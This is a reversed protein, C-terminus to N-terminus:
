IAGHFLVGTPLVYEIFRAYLKSMPLGSAAPLLLLFYIAALGLWFWKVRPSVEGREELHQLLLVASFIMFPLTPFFHYQFTCRTVLMWPLLNAAAAVLLVVAAKKRHDPDERLRGFVAETILCLSGVASVWWVAPSGFSSISSVLKGSSGFYFWVSREAFPWEYWNSQCMHTATLGSHYGYMSRQQQVIIEFARRLGMRADPHLSAQYRYFPLYSVFYILAPVLIYFGICFLLIKWTRRWFLRIEGTKGARVGTAILGSFFLVALGAGAYLGTWKSAVGLGFSIGCAGLPLLIKIWPDHLIDRRLYDTMFFFMWLIFFVIFVDVTAIRSQAYHMTDLAMLAQALFAYDRRRFLRKGLLFVVPLMGAGFLAPIVRWGFPTMGFIRIGLSIFTKGLPPHTWEYPNMNHIFEYGTRAHYIEDFYMGNFYTAAEPVTNQEDLLASQTGSPGSVAAPILAGNEDLFAIENLAIEGSLVTLVVYRTRFSVPKKRWSFMEGYVQEYELSNGDDAALYLRGVAINGNFWVATVDRTKGLDVVVREGAEPMWVSQPFSLTGLNLLTFVTYLLTLLWMVLRDGRDLLPSRNESVLLDRM